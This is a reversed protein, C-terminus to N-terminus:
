TKLPKITLIGKEYDPIVSVLSGMRWNLKEYIRKKVHVVMTTAGTGTGYLSIIDHEKKVKVKEKEKSTTKKVM